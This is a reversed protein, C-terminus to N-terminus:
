VRFEYRKGAERECDPPYSARKEAYYRARSDGAEAANWTIYLVRRQRESVNPGSRHPAFSDFFVADGPATPCAVYHVGDIDDALPKWMEGLLGRRHACAALELCGNSEDAADIALLMTIHLPAYVGWGAQVDQHPTFGNGGPLKFNIKEKFLVPEAGFLDGVCRTVKSDTLLGEFGTHYPAFNEIRSLVRRPPATVSDEYYVMHRGPVEPMAVVEDTWDAIRTMEERPFMGRVILFGNRHFDTVQQETLYVPQTM